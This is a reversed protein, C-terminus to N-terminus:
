LIRDLTYGISTVYTSPDLQVTRSKSRHKWLFPMASHHKIALPQNAANKAHRADDSARIHLNNISNQPIRRIITSAADVEGLQM